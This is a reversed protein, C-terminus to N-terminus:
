SRDGLLASRNVATHLDAASRYTLALKDYCTALSRWQKIANLSREVVNRRKYARQEAESTGRM